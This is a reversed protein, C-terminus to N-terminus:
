AFWCAVRVQQTCGLAWAPVGEATSPRSTLAASLERVCASQMAKETEALVVDVAVSKDGVQSVCMFGCFRKRARAATGACVQTAVPSGFALRESHSSVLATFGDSTVDVTVVGNFLLPVYRAVRAANRTEALVGLVADNSLFYLRPLVSRKADYFAPMERKIDVLKVRASEISATLTASEAIDMFQCLPLM